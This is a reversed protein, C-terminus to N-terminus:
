SPFRALAPESLQNALMGIPGGILCLILIASVSRPIYFRKLLGVLPSLLLAFLLAVVIPMLLSKAFYITYLLALALLWRVAPPALPPRRVAIDEIPEADADAGEAGTTRVPINM